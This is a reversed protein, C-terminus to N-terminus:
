PRYFVYYLTTEPIKNVKGNDMTFKLNSRAYLKREHFRGTRNGNRAGHYIDLTHQIVKLMVKSAHSILVITRNNSYIRAVGIKTIPVYVLEKWQKPWVRQIWIQQCIATLM